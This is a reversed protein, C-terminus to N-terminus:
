LTPRRTDYGTRVPLRRPRERFLRYLAALTAPTTLALLGLNVTTMSGDDSWERNLVLSM